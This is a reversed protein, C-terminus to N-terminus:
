GSSRQEAEQQTTCCCRLVIQVLGLFCLAGGVSIFIIKWLESKPLMLLTISGVYFYFLARGTQTALFYFYQFIASQLGYCKNIWSEPADVVFIVLGFFFTYFSQLNDRLREKNEEENSNGGILNFISMVSVVSLVLGCICCFIQVAAPNKQVYTSVTIVGRGAAAAGASAASAM